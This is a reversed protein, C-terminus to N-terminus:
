DELMGGILLAMQIAGKVMYDLREVIGNSRPNCFCTHSHRVGCLNLYGRMEESIPQTGNDMILRTPYGEELFVKHLVSITSRTTLERLFRVVLWRSHVDVM